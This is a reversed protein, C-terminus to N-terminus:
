IGNAVFEQNLDGAFVGNL